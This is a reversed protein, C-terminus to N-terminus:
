CCGSLIVATTPIDLCISCQFIKAFERETFRDLSIGPLPHMDEKFPDANLPENLQVKSDTSSHSPRPPSYLIDRVCSKKTCHVGPYHEGSFGPKSKRPSQWKTYSCVFCNGTKKLYEAHTTFEFCKGKDKPLKSQNKSRCKKYCQMKLTCRHCLFRPHQDQCFDASINLNDIEQLERQFDSALKSESQSVVTLDFSNGCRRCFLDLGERHFQFADTAM